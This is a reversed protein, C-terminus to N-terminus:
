EIPIKYITYVINKIEDGDPIYFSLGELPTEIGPLIRSDINETSFGILDKTLGILETLSFNTQVHSYAEKIISPLQLTLSKKVASKIFQQQADIRGLDQNAYGKRYRLFKLAEAGNLTQFGEKIDIILPPDDYPDSYQMRFPVNVDVGGMLDVCSILGAYDFIVYKDIPMKLIDQTIEILGEIGDSSFAANIKKSDPREYGDRPYYTDRPISLINANKEEKDYSMVMITDTRQNELGIVLVNIISRQKMKKGLETNYNFTSQSAEGDLSNNEVDVGKVKGIVIEKDVFYIHILSMFTLSVTLLIISVFFVKFYHKIM